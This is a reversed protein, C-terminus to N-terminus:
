QNKTSKQRNRDSDRQSEHCEGGTVAIKTFGLAIKISISLFRGLIWLFGDFVVQIGYFPSKQPPRRNEHIGVRNQDFDVFFLRSDM